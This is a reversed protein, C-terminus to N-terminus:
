QDFHSARLRLADYMEPSFCPDKGEMDRRLTEAFHCCLCATWFGKFRAVNGLEERTVALTLRTDVGHQHTWPSSSLHAVIM